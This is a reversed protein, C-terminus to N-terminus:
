RNVLRNFDMLILSEFTILCFLLLTVIVTINCLFNIISNFDRKYWDFFLLEGKAQNGIKYGYQELTYKITTTGTKNFGICFVKPKNSKFLM